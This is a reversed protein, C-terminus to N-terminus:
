CLKGKVRGLPGVARLHDPSCIIMCMCTLANVHKTVSLVEPHPM